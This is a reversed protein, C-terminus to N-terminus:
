VLATKREFEERRGRKRLLFTRIRSM